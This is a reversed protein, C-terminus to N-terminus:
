DRAKTSPAADMELPTRPEKPDPTPPSPSPRATVPLDGSGPRPRSAYARPMPFRETTATSTADPSITAAHLESSSDDSSVVGGASDDTSVVVRTVAETRLAQTITWSILPRGGLARVNKRPIGVSGGRAPIIALIEKRQKM